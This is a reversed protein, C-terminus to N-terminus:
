ERYGDRLAEAVVSESTQGHYTYATDIYNVGNDIANRIMKIAHPRDVSGDPNKPLRMAGVGMLSVKDGTKKIERYKM